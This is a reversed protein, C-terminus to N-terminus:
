YAALFNVLNEKQNIGLKERLRSRAVNISNESTLTIAAIEKSTMNLKLLACLKKEKPTLDPFDESLKNYFDAHLKNFQIEFEELNKDSFAIKYKNIIDKMKKKDPTHSNNVHEELESLLKHNKKNARTLFLTNSTLEKQKERIEQNFLKQKKRLIEKHQEDIIQKQRNKERINRKLSRTLFILGIIAVILISASTALIKIVTKRKDLKVQKLKNEKKIKHTEYKTQIRNIQELRKENRLSDNINHYKKFYHLALRLKKQKEYLQSFLQYIDQEWEKMGSNLVIKRAKKLYKEALSLNGKTIFLNARNIYILSLGKKDGSAKYFRASTDYLRAEKKLKGKNHMILAINHLTSAMGNTDKLHKYSSLAKNYYTLSSDYHNSHFYTNGLNRYCDAAKKNKKLRTYITLAEQNYRITKDTNGLFHNVNGINSLANAKAIQFNYKESIKISHMYKDIAKLYSGKYAFYNGLNNLAETKGFHYQIKRSQKLAKQAKKRCRKLNSILFARAEQNLSDIETTKVAQQKNQGSHGSQGSVATNILCGLTLIFCFRFM